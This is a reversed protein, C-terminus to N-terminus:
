REGLGGIENRREALFSAPRSFTEGDLAPTEYILQASFTKVLLFYVELKSCRSIDISPLEPLFLLPDSRKIEPM